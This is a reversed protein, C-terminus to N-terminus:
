SAAEALLLDALRARLPLGTRQEVWAWQGNPNLEFFTYGGDPRRALDIAGFRLGYCRALEVCRVAVDDPLEEVAHPLAAAHSRRWDTATEHSRQSDIAAAFAEGGIVTVRVDVRKEVLAQFLYPEPGLEDVKVSTEDLRTTFFLREDGEQVPVRGDWLPKCVVGQPHNAVFERVRERDNTVLTDPVEFGLRQAAKLQEPKSEALRNRDPHNVWVADLTRWAGLLAESAERTAWLRQADSLEAPLNPPIPRRYWVASFEALGHMTDGLTLEGGSPTWTLTAATPYDETNFRVFPARRRALELVLWDATLDGRETVILLV